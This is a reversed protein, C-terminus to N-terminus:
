KQNKLLEVMAKGMAEGVNMYTEANGYHGNGSGGLSLPNSYVTAVNGKFEPHKGEKGDVALQGEMSTASLPSVTIPPNNRGQRYFADSRVRWKGAEDLLYTFKKDKKTVTELDGKGELDEQSLWFAASGGKFYTISVPYRRGTELAVKTTVPQGGPDKRYVEKGDLTVVNHTSDEFGAHVTYSGGAPVEIFANVV